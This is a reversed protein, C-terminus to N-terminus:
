YFLAKDYWRTRELNVKVMKEKYHPKKASILFSNIENKGTVYPARPQIWCHAMKGLGHTPRPVASSSELVETWLMTHYECFFRSPLQDNTISHAWTGFGKKGLTEHDVEPKKNKLSEVGHTPRPVASSPELVPKFFSNSDLYSFFPYIHRTTVAIYHNARKKAELAPTKRMNILALQNETLRSASCAFFLFPKAKPNPQKEEQKNKPLELTL